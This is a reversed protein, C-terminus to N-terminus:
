PTLLGKARLWQWLNDEQTAAYENYLYSRVSDFIISNSAGSPQESIVARVEGAVDNENVYLPVFTAILVGPGFMPDENENEFYEVIVRPHLGSHSGFITERDLKIGTADSADKYTIKKGVHYWARVIAPKALSLKSTDVKIYAPSLILLTDFTLSTQLRELYAMSISRSATPKIEPQVFSQFLDFLERSQNDPVGSIKKRGTDPSSVVIYSTRSDFKLQRNSPIVDGTKLPMKTVQDEVIGVVKVVRYDSIKQAFALTGIALLGLLLIHKAMAYFNFNANKEQRM